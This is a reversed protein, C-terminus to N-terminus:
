LFSARPEEFFDLEEVDLEESEEDALSELVDVSFDVSFFALSVDVGAAELM